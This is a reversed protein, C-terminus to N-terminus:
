RRCDVARHLLDFVYISLLLVNERIKKKLERHRDIPVCKELHQIYRDFNTVLHFQLLLLLLVLHTRM